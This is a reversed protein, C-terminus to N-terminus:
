KGSIRVIDINPNLIANNTKAEIDTNSAAFFYQVVPYFNDEYLSEFDPNTKLVRGLDKLAAFAQIGGVSNMPNSEDFKVSVCYLKEGPELAETLELMDYESLSKFPSEGSDSNVPVSKKELAPMVPPPSKKAPKKEGVFSKLREELGSVDEQYVEGNSRKELM